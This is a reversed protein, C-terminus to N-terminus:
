FGFIDVGEKDYGNKFNFQNIGNNDFGDKDHGM